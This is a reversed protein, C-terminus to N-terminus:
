YPCRPDNTDTDSCDAKVQQLCTSSDWGTAGNEDSCSEIWKRYGATDGKGVYSGWSECTEMCAIKEDTNEANSKPYGGCEQEICKQVEACSCFKYCQGVEFTTCNTGCYAFGHEAEYLAEGKEDKIEGCDIIGADETKSDCIEYQDVKGNGCTLHTKCADTQQKCTENLCDETLMPCKSDACARLTEYNSKADRWTSKALCAEDCESNDCQMTCELIQYCTPENIDICSYTDWGTCSANCVAENAPHYEKDATNLEQCPKTEQKECIENFEPEIKGNGCRQGPYCNYYADSCNQKLCENDSIGSCASACQELAEYKELGEATGANKCEEVCSSNTGCKQICDVLMGCPKNKGTTSTACEKDVDWGNCYRTCPAEGSIFDSNLDSCLMVEGQECIEGDDKQFNGCKDSPDRPVCRGTDEFDSCDSKCKAFGDPWFHGAKWCPTDGDCVEGSDIKGNGCKSEKVAEPLSNSDSSGCSVLPVICFAFILACVIKKM